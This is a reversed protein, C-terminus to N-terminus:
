HSSNLRTSKRDLADDGAKLWVQKDKPYGIITGECTGTFIVDGPELMFHKSCYAIIQACNFIMLRTNTRTQQNTNSDTQAIYFGSDPPTNSVVFNVTTNSGAPVVLNTYGISVAVDGCSGPTSCSDLHNTSDLTGSAFQSYLSGPTARSGMVGVSYVQGIALSGVASAFENLGGGDAIDYNYIAFVNYSQGGALTVTATGLTNSDNLHVYDFTGPEVPPLFNDTGSGNNCSHNIDLTNVYFCWDNLSYSGAFAMPAVFLVAVILLLKLRM